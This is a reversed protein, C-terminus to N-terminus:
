TDTQTDSDTSYYGSHSHSTPNQEATILKPQIQRYKHPTMDM